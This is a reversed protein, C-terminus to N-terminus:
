AWNRFHYWPPTAGHPARKTNTGCHAEGSCDHYPYWDRVFRCDFGINHLAVRLDEEFVDVAGTGFNSMPGYPIPAIGRQGLVLMNVTDATLAGYYLGDEADLHFLVPAHIVRPIDIAAQLTNLVGTLRQQCITNWQRLQNHTGVHPIGATLFDHVTVEVDREVDDHQVHDYINLSRNVLLPDAGHGHGDLWELLEYARAPSAIVLAFKRLDGVANPYPVFTLMEDVHGVHLWTADLELAPQVIQNDLFSQMAANMPSLPRGRCFYMRGFPYQRGPTTVWRYRPVYRRRRADWRTGDRRWVRGDPAKCPPTCELNGGSNFTTANAPNGVAHVGVERGLFSWPYDQLGRGRPVQLVSDLRTVHNTTYGIEMCDQMWRDRQYAGQNGVQVLNVGNPLDAALDQRFLDNTGGLDRVYVRQPTDLHHYMLWPAIRLTATEEYADRQLPVLPSPREVRLRLTVQHHGPATAFAIAEMALALTPAPLPNPLAYSHGQAPGLIEPANQARGRFVRARQHMGGDISLTVTWNADNFAGQRRVEIPATEQADNHANIVADAHDPQGAAGDGTDNDHNVLVIAGLGFRGWLWTNNFARDDDVTGDRNADVHLHFGVPDLEFHVDVTQGVNVQINRIEAMGPEHFVKSAGATYTRGGPVQFTLAGFAPSVGGQGTQEVAVAAGALAEVGRRGARWVYIRIWGDLCLQLVPLQPLSRVSNQFQFGMASPAMPQAIGFSPTFSPFPNTMM